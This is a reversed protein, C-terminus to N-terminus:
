CLEHWGRGRDPSKKAGVGGPVTKAKALVTGPAPASKIMYFRGTDLASNYCNTVTAKKGCLLIRALGLHSHNENAGLLIRAVLLIRALRAFHASVLGVLNTLM